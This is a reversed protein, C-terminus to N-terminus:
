YHQPFCRQCPSFILEREEEHRWQRWSFPFNTSLLRRAALSSVDRAKHLDLLDDSPSLHVEDTGCDRGIPISKVSMNLGRLLSM